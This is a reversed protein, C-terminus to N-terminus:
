RAKNAPALRSIPVYGIGIGGKEVLIWDYGKAKALIDVAQGRPLKTDNVTGAYIYPSIYLPTPEAVVYKSTIPEYGFPAPVVDNALRVAELAGEAASALVPQNLLAFALVVMSLRLQARLLGKDITPRMTERQLLKDCGITIREPEGQWDQPAVLNKGVAM